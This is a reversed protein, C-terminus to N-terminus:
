KKLGMVSVNRGANDGNIRHSHIFNPYCATCIGSEIINKTKVGVEEIILRNILNTDIFYKNPKLENKIIIDYNRNLYSFTQEFIKKVDEGVEFHCKGICPGICVILDEPNSNYESIMKKVAKQGIKQVTGRWGSHINGIVRKVPDYIYIPTCDAFSLVLNINNENTLLGDVNDFQEKLNGVKRVIDSHTQGPRIISDKSIELGECLRELSYEVKKLQEETGLNKRFDIEEVSLTYCHVIEDYELLKRFQLYEIGSKKVHLMNENSLDM